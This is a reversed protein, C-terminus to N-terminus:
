VLPSKSVPTRFEKYEEFEKFERELLTKAQLERM